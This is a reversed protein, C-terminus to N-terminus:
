TRGFRRMIWEMARVLYTVTALIMQPTSAGRLKEVDEELHAMKQEDDGAHHRWWGSKAAKECRRAAAPLALFTIRTASACLNSMRSLALARSVRRRKERQRCDGKGGGEGRLRRNAHFHPFRLTSKAGGVGM